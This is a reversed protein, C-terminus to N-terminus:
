LCLHTTYVQTPIQRPSLAAELASGYHRAKAQFVTNKVSFNYMEGFTENEALYGKMVSDRTNQRLTRDTDLLIKNYNSLTVEHPKGHSDLAKEFTMNVNTKINFIKQSGQCIAGAQTLLAEMETPLVHKQLRFVTSFYSTYVTLSPDSQVYEQITDQGISLIEADMFSLATDLETSLQFARDALAQYQPNAMDQHYKANAYLQLKRSATNLIEYSRMGSLLNEGSTRMKGEYHKYDPIANALWQYATEWAEDSEFATTLDWTDETPIQERTKLEAM